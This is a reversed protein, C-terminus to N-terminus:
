GEFAEIHQGTKLSLVDYGMQEFARVQLIVQQHLDRFFTMWKM